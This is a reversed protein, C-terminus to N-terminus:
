LLSGYVQGSGPSILIHTLGLCCDLCGVCVLHGNCAAGTISESTSDWYGKEKLWKLIDLHGGSAASSVVCRAPIKGFSQLGHLFELVEFNGAVFTLTSISVTFSTFTQAFNSRVMLLTVLTLFIM